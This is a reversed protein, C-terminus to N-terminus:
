SSITPAFFFRSRHNLFFIQPPLFMGTTYLGVTHMHYEIKSQIFSIINGDGRRLCVKDIVLLESDLM